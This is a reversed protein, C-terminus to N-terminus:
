DENAILGSLEIKENRINVIEWVISELCYHLRLVLGPTEDDYWLLSAGVITESILNKISHYDVTNPAGIVLMLTNPVEDIKVIQTTVDHSSLFLHIQYKKLIPIIKRRYEIIRTNNFHKGLSYLPLHSLVINWLCSERTEEMAADIWSVDTDTFNLSHITWFCIMKDSLEHEVFRFEVYTEQGHYVLNPEDEAYPHQLFEDPDRDGQVMIFDNAIAASLHPFTSVSNGLLLVLDEKSGSRLNHSLFKNLTRSPVKVNGFAIMTGGYEGLRVAGKLMCIRSITLILISLYM